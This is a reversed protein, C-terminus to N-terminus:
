SDVLEVFPGDVTFSLSVSTLEGTGVTIGANTIYANFAIDDKIDVGAGPQAGARLIMGVRDSETVGATSTKMVKNLLQEFQVGVDGAESRYYMVTASGTSSVMGPTYTKVATDITTTELLELSTEISWDRIKLVSQNAAPTPATTLISTLFLKGSRGTYFGM